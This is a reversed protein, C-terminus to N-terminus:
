PRCTTLAMSAAWAEAVTAFEFVFAGTPSGLAAEFRARLALLAGVDARSSAGICGMICAGVDLCLLLTADDDTRAAVDAARRIVVVDALTASAYRSSVHQPQQPQQQQHQEVWLEFQRCFGDALDARTDAQGPRRLAAGYRLTEAGMGHAVAWKSCEYSRLVPVSLDTDRIRLRLGHLAHIADADADYPVEDSQPKTVTAPAESNRDHKHGTTTTTPDVAFTAAAPQKPRSPLCGM